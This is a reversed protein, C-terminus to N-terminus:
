ENIWSNCAHNNHVSMIWITPIFHLNMHSFLAPTHMDVLFPLHSSLDIYLDGIMNHWSSHTAEDSAYASEKWSLDSVSHLNLFDMTTSSAVIATDHKTQRLM